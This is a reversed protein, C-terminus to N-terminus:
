LHNGNLFFFGKKVSFFDKLYEVYFFFCHFSLVFGGYHEAMKINVTVGYM